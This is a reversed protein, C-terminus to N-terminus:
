CPLIDQVSNGNNQPQSNLLFFLNNSITVRTLAVYFQGHSFPHYKSVDLDARSLTQGQAKNITIAFCQKIPLQLRNFSVSFDDSVEHVFLVRHIFVKKLFHAGPNIIQCELVNNHRKLLLARIKGDCVGNNVDINRINIM